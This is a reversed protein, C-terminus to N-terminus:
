TGFDSRKILDVEEYNTRCFPCHPSEGGSQARSRFSCITICSVCAMCSDKTLNSNKDPHIRCLNEDSLCIMCTGHILETHIMQMKIRYYNFREKWELPRIIGTQSDMYAIMTNPDALSEMPMNMYEDLEKANSQNERHVSLSTNDNAYTKTMEPANLPSMVMNGCFLTM